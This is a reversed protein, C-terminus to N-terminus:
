SILGEGCETPRIGKQGPRADVTAGLGEGSEEGAESGRGTNVPGKGFGTSEETHSWAVMALHAESKGQEFIEEKAAEAAEGDPAGDPNEPSRELHTREEFM